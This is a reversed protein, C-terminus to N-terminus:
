VPPQLKSASDNLERVKARLQESACGCGGGCGPQRRKALARLVLASAAVAVVAFAILTQLPASM